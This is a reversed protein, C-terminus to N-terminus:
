SSYDIQGHIEERYRIRMFIGGTRLLVLQRPSAKTYGHEPGTM